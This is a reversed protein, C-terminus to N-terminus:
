VLLGRFAEGAVNLMEAPLHRGQVVCAVACLAVTIKLLSAAVREATSCWREVPAFVSSPTTISEDPTRDRVLARRLLDIITQM